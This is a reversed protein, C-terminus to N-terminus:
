TKWTFHGSSEDIIIVLRSLYIQAVVTLTVTVAAAMGTPM